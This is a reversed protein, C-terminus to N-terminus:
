QYYIGVRGIRVRPVPEEVAGAEERGPPPLSRIPEFTVNVSAPDWRGQERLENALETIDFVYRLGHGGPHDAAVDQAREIGFFSLNGVLHREATSPDADDPLNVFVAYSLGPNVEGSIGEVNLHVRAPEREGALLAPGAPESLPIAVREARGELTLPADTAGVLEPPRDTPPEPPVGGGGGGVLAPVTVEEYEYGLTRLQVVESSTMRVPDRNEDHFDFPENVWAAEAPNERGDQKLWEGWLRDINAHHMWFVPDLPATDFASMLGGPGGV